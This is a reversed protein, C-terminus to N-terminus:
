LQKWTIEIEGKIALYIGLWVGLMMYKYADVQWSLSSQSTINDNLKLATYYQQSLMM